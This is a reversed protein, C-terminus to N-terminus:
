IDIESIKNNLNFIANNNTSMNILDLQKLFKNYFGYYHLQNNINPQEENNIISKNCNLIILYYDEIDYDKNEIISKQHEKTLGFQSLNNSIYNIAEEGTYIQYGGAHYNDNHNRDDQYWTYTKDNNLYLMSNDTGLWSNGSIDFSEARNYEDYYKDDYRDFFDEYYDDYYEDYYNDPTMEQYNDEAYRFVFLTVLVIFVIVIISLILSAIGFAAGVSNKGTEKKAKNGIIISIVALIIALPPLALTVFSIIGLILSATENGNTKKSSVPTVNRENNISTGCNTCYQENENRKKGCNTCYM